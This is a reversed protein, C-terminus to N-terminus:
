QPSCIPLISVIQWGEPKKVMVLHHLPGQPDVGPDRVTLQTPAYVQAVRRASSIIRLEKRDATSRWTGKYTELEQPGSGVGSPNAGASGCYTRRLGGFAECRGEFRAREPSSHVQDFVARVRGGHRLMLWCRMVALAAFVLFRKVM